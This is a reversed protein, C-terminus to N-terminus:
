GSHNNAELVRSYKHTARALRTVSVNFRVFRLVLRLKM